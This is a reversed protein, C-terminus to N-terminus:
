AGREALDDCALDLACSLVAGYGLEPETVQRAGGMLRHYTDGWQEWDDHAVFRLEACAITLADAVTSTEGLGRHRAVALIRHRHDSATAM